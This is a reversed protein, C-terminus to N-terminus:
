SPRRLASPRGHHRSHAAHRRRRGHLRDLGGREVVRQERRRRAVLERSSTPCLNRPERHETRMTRGRNPSDQVSGQFWCSGSGSGLVTLIKSGHGTSWSLEVRRDRGAPQLGEQIGGSSFIGGGGPQPHRPPVPVGAAHRSGHAAAGQSVRRRAPALRRHERTAREEDTRVDVLEFSEGRERM